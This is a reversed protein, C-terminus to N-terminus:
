QDTDYKKNRELKAIDNKLRRMITDYVPSRGTHKAIIALRLPARVSNRAFNLTKDFVAIDRNGPNLYNYKYAGDILEQRTLAAKFRLGVLKNLVYWEEANMEVLEGERQGEKAPLRVKDSMESINYPQQDPNDLNYKYIMDM